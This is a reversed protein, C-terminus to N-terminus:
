PTEWQVQDSGPTLRANTLRGIYALTASPDAPVPDGWAAILRERGAPSVLMAAITRGDRTASVSIPPAPLRLLRRVNAVPMVAAVGNPTALLFGEDLSYADGVNSTSRTVTGDGAIEFLTSDSRAWIRDGVARLGRIRQGLAIEHPAGGPPVRWLQEFDAVAWWTGDASRHVSNLRGPIGLELPHVGGADILAAEGGSKMVFLRGEEASFMLISSDVREGNRRPEFHALVRAGAPDAVPVEVIDGAVTEHYVCMGRAGGIGIATDRVHAARYRLDGALNWIVLSRDAAGGTAVVADGLIYAHTGFGLPALATRAGTALDIIALSDLQAALRDREQAPSDSLPDGDFLTGAERGIVLHGTGVAYLRESDELAVLAPAAASLDLAMIEGESTGIAVTKGSAAIVHLPVPRHPLEILGARGAYALGGDATAFVAGDATQAVEVRTNHTPRVSWRTVARDTGGGAIQSRRNIGRPLVGAGGAFGDPDGGGAIQSRRDTEFSVVGSGDNSWGYLQDGAYAIGNLGDRVRPWTHPPADSDVEWELASGFTSAAVRKGGASLRVQFIRNAVAVARDRRSGDREIVILRDRGLMAIRGSRADIAQVGGTALTSAQGDGTFSQVGGEATRVVLRGDDVAIEAYATVPLTTVAERDVDVLELAQHVTGGNDSESYGCVVVHDDLWALQSAKCGHATRTTRGALDHIQLGGSSVSALRGRPSFALAGVFNDHRAILRESGGAVAARAIERATTWRPSDPPLDRLVALASTPDVTVLARARDVLLDDAREEAISRAVRARDREAIIRSISLAGGGAVVVLASAAVITVLRHARVWRAIRQRATYRHAEVLQGALFRRLDDALKSADGYRTAEAAALAKTTIAILELPVEPPMRAMDPGDGAAVREIARTPAVGEFPIAGTLVYYLTAGLSYVDAAPGAPEGRAQEPAMFGPTGYAAGARTLPADPEPLEAGDRPEAGGIARALGWDILLTEGFAGLLINWPKIDRHVVGRAHAYAAADIASLLAPVLALRDRPGGARAVRESLPVGDIKRMVYFPQGMADRGTDLVPVIAPHQLQATIRVEREFRERGVDDTALSYKIAVTRDLVRDIAEAVRGMGGRGLEAREDFRPRVDDFVSPAAGAAAPAGDAAVTPASWGAAPRPHGGTTDAPTPANWEAAPRPHRGASDASHAASDAALTPANWEAAPRPNSGASDVGDAAGDAALTPAHWRAAPRARPEDGGPDHADEAGGAPDADNAKQADDM